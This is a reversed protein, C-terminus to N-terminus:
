RNGVFNSALEVGELIAIFKKLGRWIHTIGPDKDSKRASIRGIACDMQHM